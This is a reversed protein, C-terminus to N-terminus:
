ARAHHPRPSAPGAGRGAAAVRRRAAATPRSGDQSGTAAGRRSVKGHQHFADAARKAHGLLNEYRSSCNTRRSRDLATEGCIWTAGTCSTYNKNYVVYRSPLECHHSMQWTDVM